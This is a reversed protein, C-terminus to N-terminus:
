CLASFLLHPIAPETGRSHSSSPLGEQISGNKEGNNEVASCLTTCSSMSVCSRAKDRCFVGTGTCGCIRGTSNVLLFPQTLATHGADHQRVRAPTATATSLLRVTSSRGNRLSDFSGQPGGEMCLNKRKDERCYYLCYLTQQSCFGCKGVSFPSDEIKGFCQSLVSLCNRVKNKVRPMRGLGSLSQNYYLHNGIPKLGVVMIMQPMGRDSMEALQFSCPSWIDRPGSDTLAMFKLRSM